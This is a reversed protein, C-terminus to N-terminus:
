STKGVMTCRCNVVEEADAASPDAPYQLGNSFPEDANRTEGNLKAHSERENGDMTTLWVKKAGIEAFYEKTGGNISGTAETRAIMRARAKDFIAGLNDTIEAITNGAALGEAVAASVKKRTTESIKSIRSAARTLYRAIANDESLAKTPIQLQGLRIGEKVGAIIVPKVAVQLRREENAWDVTGGDTLIKSVRAKQESLFRGVRQAIVREAKAQTVDFRKWIVIARAEDPTQKLFSKGEEDSAPASAPAEFAKGYDSVPMLGISIWWEDGWDVPPMGLNLRDNIANLPFGLAQLGKAQEIKDNFDEAFAPVNDYKFRLELNPNYLAVIRQNLAAQVKTLTPMITMQWFVKIQGQFTAYNTTDTMNLLAKQASFYTYIREDTAQSEKIQAENTGQSLTKPELGGSTIAVRNKNRIGKHAAEWGTRIADIESQSLKQETSLIFEPMAGNEYFKASAKTSYISTRLLDKMAIQPDLGRKDDDPNFTKIHIVDAAPYMIGNYQWQTIVGQADVYHMCDAPDVVRLSAPLGGEIQAASGMTQSLIIIAEGRYILYGVIAECFGKEDQNIFPNKFLTIIKAASANDKYVEKNTAFDFFGIELQAANGTIFDLARKVAPVRSYADRNGGFIDAFNSIVFPDLSPTTDKQVLSSLATANTKNSSFFRTKITDIINM